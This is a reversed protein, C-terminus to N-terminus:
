ASKVSLLHWNIRISGRLQPPKDVNKESESPLEKVARRVGIVNPLTPESLKSGRQVKGKFDTQSIVRAIDDETEETRWVVITQSAKAQTAKAAETTTADSQPAPAWDSM